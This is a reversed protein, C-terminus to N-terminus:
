RIYGNEVDFVHELLVHTLLRCPDELPNCNPGTTAIVEKAALDRRQWGEIKIDLELSREFSLM